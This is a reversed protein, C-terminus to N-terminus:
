PSSNIAGRGVGLNSMGNDATRFQKNRINATVRSIQLGDGTDAARLCEHVYNRVNKHM